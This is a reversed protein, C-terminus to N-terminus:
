APAGTETRKSVTLRVGDKPHLSFLPLPVAEGQGPALGVRFRQLLTAVILVMEMLAFTMGICSRPGAGFPIYACQPVKAMREPTFREPDFMEPEPWWRPDRQVVYVVSHVMGGKPIVYEGLPVPEAAVRAFLLYAQPYLRLTEKVVMETYRLRPLDDATPERGNLVQTVEAVVKAQIAADKALHYWVWALTGATTDHGALFLTMAEDRAQQDSMGRGDGEEDVAQLLMSLLDGKDQGSARREAIIRRITTDLFEMAARKRRVRPLPLWLPTNFPQASERMAAASLEAVAQGLKRTDETVEVGFMTRAIIELTLGTMTENIEVEAPLKEQWRDALRRTAAVMSVAYTPFRRVNFAPQVLRRQRLWLDGDSTVLGDGDWQQLVEVQRGQRRFLKAKTVLVERLLDPHYVWYSRYPGLRMYVVDGYKRQLDTLFKLPAAQFQRAIGFGFLWDWPGPPRKNM